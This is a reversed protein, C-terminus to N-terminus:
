ECREGSVRSASYIIGPRLMKRKMVCYLHRAVTGNDFKQSIVISVKIGEVLGNLPRYQVSVNKLHDFDYDLRALLISVCYAEPDILSDNFRLHNESTGNSVFLDFDTHFLPWHGPPVEINIM